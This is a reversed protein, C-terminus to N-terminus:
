PYATRHCFCRRLRRCAQAQRHPRRRREHVTNRGKVTHLDTFVNSDAEGCKRKGAVAHGDGVVRERLRAANRCIDDLIHSVAAFVAHVGIIPEVFVKDDRCLLAVFEAQGVRCVALPHIGKGCRIFGTVAFQGEEHLIGFGADNRRCHGLVVFDVLGRRGTLNLQVFARRELLKDVRDSETQEELVIDM